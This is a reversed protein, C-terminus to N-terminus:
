NQYNYPVILHNPSSHACAHTDIPRPSEHSVQIM